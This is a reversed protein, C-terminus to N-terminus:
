EAHQEALITPILGADHTALRRRIKQRSQESLGYGRGFITDIKVGHAALKKRLTCIYVSLSGEGCRKDALGEKRARRVTTPSVGLERVIAKNSRTPDHAIAELVRERSPSIRPALTIDDNAVVSETLLRALVDGEGRRLKFILTLTAALAAKDRATIVPASQTPPTIIVTQGRALATQIQTAFAPEIKNQM